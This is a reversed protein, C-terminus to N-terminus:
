YRKLDWVKYGYFLESFWIRDREMNLTRKIMLRKGVWLKSPHAFFRLVGIAVTDDGGDHDDEHGSCDKNLSQHHDEAM